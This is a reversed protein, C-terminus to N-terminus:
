KPIFEERKLDNVNYYKLVKTSNLKILEDYDEVQKEKNFIAEIFYLNNGYVRYCNNAHLSNIAALPKTETEVLYTVIFPFGTKEFNPISVRRKIITDGRYLNRLKKKNLKKVGMRYLKERSNLRLKAVINKIENPKM